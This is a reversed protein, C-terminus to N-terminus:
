KCICDDIISSEFRAKFQTKSRKPHWRAICKDGSGTDAQIFSSPFRHFLEKFHPQALNQVQTSAEQKGLAKM